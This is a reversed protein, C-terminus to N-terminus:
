GALLPLVNRLLQAFSQFGNNAIQPAHLLIVGLDEVCLDCLELLSALQEGAGGGYVTWHRLLLQQECGVPQHPDVPGDIHLSHAPLIDVAYTCDIILIFYGNLINLYARLPIDSNFNCSDGATVLILDKKIGTEDEGPINAQLKQSHADVSKEFMYGLKSSGGFISGGGFLPWDGGGNGDPLLEIVMDLVALPWM